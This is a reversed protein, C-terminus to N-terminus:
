STMFPHGRILIVKSQSFHLPWQLVCCLFGKEKTYFGDIMDIEIVSAAISLQGMQFLISVFKHPKLLYRREYLVRTRCSTKYKSPSSRSRWCILAVGRAVM